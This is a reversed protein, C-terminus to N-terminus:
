KNARYAKFLKEWAAGLEDYDEHMEAVISVVRMLKKIENETLEVTYTKTETM